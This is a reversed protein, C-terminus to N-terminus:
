RSFSHCTEPDVARDNFSLLSPAFGVPGPVDFMWRM